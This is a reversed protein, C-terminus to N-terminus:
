KWLKLLENAVVEHGHANYHGDIEFFLDESSHARMAPLLDVCPANFEDAIACLNKFGKQENNLYNGNDPFAKEYEEQYVSEKSPLMVLVPVINRQTCFNLMHRVRTELAQNLGQEFYAPHTGRKKFVVSGNSLTASGGFDNNPKSLSQM